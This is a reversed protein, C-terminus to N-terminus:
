NVSRRVPSGARAVLWAVLNTIALAALGAVVGALWAWRRTVRAADREDRRHV